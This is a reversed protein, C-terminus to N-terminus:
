LIDIPLTHEQAECLSVYTFVYEGAFLSPALKFSPRSPSIYIACVYTELRTLMAFSFM